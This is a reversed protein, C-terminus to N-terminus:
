ENNWKKKQSRIQSVCAEYGWVGKGLVSAGSKFSGHVILLWCSGLNSFNAMGPNELERDKVEDFFKWNAAPGDM